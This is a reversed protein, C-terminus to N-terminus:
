NKLRKLLSECIKLDDRDNIDFSRVKSTEFCFHNNTCYVRKQKILKKHIFYISGNEFYSKIKFDQRRNIEKKRKIIYNWKKKSLIKITEFPHEISKSVTFLSLPKYKKILNICSNIDKYNRLPSTPQLLALYDFDIKKNKTWNYFHFLTETIPTKDKSKNNPRIYDSNIKYKKAIFKIKKSDTLVFNNNIKSKKAHIFSYEILPKNNLIITNKNKIGKSGSRAPIVSIIKM